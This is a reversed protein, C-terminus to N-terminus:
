EVPWHEDDDGLMTFHRPNGTALRAGLSHTSAAILCDAQALTIGRAAHERRWTGAIVAEQRALPALILGQIM